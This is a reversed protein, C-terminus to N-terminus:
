EYIKYKNQSNLIIMNADLLFRLMNIIDKDNVQLKSVIEKSSLTQKSLVELIMKDLDKPKTPSKENKSQCVDCIGCDENLKEGFYYSLQKNRCITNNQVFDLVSKYKNRKSKEQKKINNAISNIAYNDERPKLFQLKSKNINAQYNILGDKNIENLETSLQKVTLQLKSAIKFLSIQQFTTYIGDYSRLLMRLIKEKNPNRKYYQFLQENGATFVLEPISKVHQSFSLIGERELIEIGNHTKQLPLQYKQCFTVLHFSFAKNPISGYTIQFYQNLNQYLQKIFTVTPIAKEFYSSVSTIKSTDTFLIAQSKKGDRGARGAEQIYNEISFPLALHIVKRVNSKDIGMGFANTAVMILKQENYWEQAAKEKVEKTLGAHYYVSGIGRSNLYESTRQCKIRSGAYIIIPEKCAVTISYLHDLSDETNIVQLYLNKRIISEQYVKPKHLVLFEKIDSLVKQTATATLAIIQVNPHLNRLTNIQLYSPRFDHGWESICHAEDVAILIVKLQKIKERIFTSQLREPSIYLFRIGGFQINDFIRVLEDKVLSGTLAVAKIGKKNLNEVQDKMLAILPSVVICVGSEQMLTPVQFCVSKGSGTPLLAVVDKKAIVDDIITNQPKRFSSFGWYRELIDIASTM